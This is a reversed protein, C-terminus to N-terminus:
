GILISLAQVPQGSVLVLSNFVAKGSVPVSGQQAPIAGRVTGASNCITCYAATGDASANVTDTAPTLTLQGTTGNVTGGPDTLTHTCLLVDAASYTKITGPGSGSDILALLATHCDIKVQAEWTTVLPAPM